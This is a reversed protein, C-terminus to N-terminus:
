NIEDYYGRKYDEYDEILEDIDSNEVMMMDIDKIVDAYLINFM